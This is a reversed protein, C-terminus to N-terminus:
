KEKEYIASLITQLMRKWTYARATERAARAVPLALEPNTLISRLINALAQPKEPEVLFGNEGHRIYERIAPLDSAVVIRGAAMAELLAVGQSEYRSPQIYIFSNSLLSPIHDHSVEGIREVINILSTRQIQTELFKDFEPEGYPGGVIRIPISVGSKMIRKVADLLVDVGKQRCSRGVYLVSIPHPLKIDLSPIEFFADGVGNPAVIIKRNDCGYISYLAVAESKSLAVIHNARDLLARESAKVYSPLLLKNYRAKEAALLHPTHILKTRSPIYSELGIGSTWHHTHICIYKEPQFASHSIVGRVFSRGEEYDRQLVNRKTSPVFPVRFVRVGPENVVVQDQRKEDRTFVDVNCFKRRLENIIARVNLTGGDVVSQEGSPYRRSKIVCVTTM